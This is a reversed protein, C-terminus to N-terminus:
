AYDLVCEVASGLLNKEGGRDRALEEKAEIDQDTGCDTIM